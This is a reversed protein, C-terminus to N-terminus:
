IPSSSRSAQRRKALLTAAIVQVRVPALGGRLSPIAQVHSTRESKWDPGGNRGTSTSRPVSPPLPDLNAGKTLRLISSPPPKAGSSTVNSTQSWGSGGSNIWIVNNPTIKPSKTQFKSWWTKLLTGKKGGGGQGAGCLLVTAGGGGWGDGM